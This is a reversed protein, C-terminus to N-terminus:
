RKFLFMKTDRRSVQNYIMLGFGIVTGLASLAEVVSNEEVDLGLVSLLLLILGVANKSIMSIKKIVRNVETVM